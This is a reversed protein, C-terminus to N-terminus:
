QSSASDKQLFQKTYSELEEPNKLTPFKSTFMKYVM